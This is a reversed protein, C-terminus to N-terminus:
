NRGHVGAVAAKMHFSSTVVPYPPLCAVLINRACTKQYRSRDQGSQETLGSLQKSTWYQFFTCEFSHDMINVLQYDRGLLWVSHM